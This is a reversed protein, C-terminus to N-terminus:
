EYRLANLASIRTARRAPFLGTLYGVSFALVLIMTIFYIPISVISLYGAGRSITYFSLGLELLKAMFYGLLLGFIGGSFGMIMSEALFLDRIEHSKLGMAKMLGVERTRELLSVTLTNFMGLSAIVLAVMGVVLLMTRATAFIGNISAVTDVVSSTNYGFTEIQSRVRPLQPESAVSLKVQSFRNVGLLRLDTLPVYLVPSRDDPTVGIIKYTTPTSQIKQEDRSELLEGTVVFSIDFEKGLADNEELGLVQLTAMNVVVEHSITKPLSVQRTGETFREANVEAVDSTNISQVDALNSDAIFGSRTVQSGADNRLPTYEGNKEQWIPFEARVWGRTIEAENTSYEGGEIAVGTIDTGQSQTFGLVPANASASERVRYWENRRLSILVQNENEEAAQPTAEAPVETPVFTNKDAISIENHEFIRGITPKVASQELYDRTVGYAVLDTSSNQYSANAVLAIMPAVTIVDTTQAFEQLVSEDIKLNSGPPVTVDTQRMEELRAVRKVVLDQLGYGISVLFVIAGIGITMGFITIRTRAKKQAMNRLALIILDTRAITPLKTKPDLINQFRKFISLVPQTVQFRGFVKRVASELFYIVILIVFTLPGWVIDLIRFLRSIIAKM